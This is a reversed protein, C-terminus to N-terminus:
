KRNVDFLIILNIRIKRYKNLKCNYIFYIKITPFRVVPTSM